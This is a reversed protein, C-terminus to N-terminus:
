DRRRQEISAAQMQHLVASADRTIPRLSPSGEIFLFPKIRFALVPSRRNGGASLDVEGGRASVDGDNLGRVGEVHQRSVFEIAADGGCGGDGIVFEVDPGSVM